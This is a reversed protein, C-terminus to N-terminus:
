AALFARGPGKRIRRGRCCRWGTPQQCSRAGTASPRNLRGKELTGLVPTSAPGGVLRDRDSRRAPQPHRIPPRRNSRAGATAGGPGGPNGSGGVGQLRAARRDRWRGAV